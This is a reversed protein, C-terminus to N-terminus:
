DGIATIAVDCEAFISDLSGPPAPLSNRDKGGWVVRKLRFRTALRQEVLTLLRDANTKRNSFLGLVLGDLSGPRLAMSVETTEVHGRPDLITLM